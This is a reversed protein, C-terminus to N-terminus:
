LPLNVTTPEGGVCTITMRIRSLPKAFVISTTVAPGAKVKQVVYPDDPMWSLLEAKAGTCTANVTGAVSTLTKSKPGSVPASSTPPSSVPAQITPAGAPVTVEPGGATPGADPSTTAAPPLKAGPLAADGVRAPATGPAGPAAATAPPRNAAM